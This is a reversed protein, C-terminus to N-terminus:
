GNGGSGGGARDSGPGGPFGGAPGDDGSRPPEDSRVGGSGLLTRTLPGGEVVLERLAADVHRDTVVRGAGEDAAAVAAKRVLERMFAGSAGATRAVVADREALRLDLGRGYLDLLRSRCAADPLPVQVAQDIRGPRSALAPELLDPRNTTLVFLVDADEAVGDMQNLLEFLLANCGGRSTREEAILDVDEMIVTAPQLVRAMACSQEVTGLGRGTLLIVTRDPTRGALYMATLTKGTGPPGYLLMGRKLHRGSARLEDRLESFRVAQREVRDLVGAPLVIDERRVAPLRHFRVDVASNSVELSVVRGRYISGKRMASRLSALVAEAAGRTPAMVEATLVDQHGGRPGSVLVAAREDGRRVLFLATHVCAVVRDPNLPLNVYEVPGVSGATMRSTASPPAVLQALQVGFMQYQSTVGVVEAQRGPEALYAELALHLNAHEHRTFRETVIPLAAPDTGFHDRVRRRLEPEEDPAQAAMRDMFQRFSVGFTRPDFESDPV